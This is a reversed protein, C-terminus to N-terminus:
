AADDNVLAILEQKSHIGTKAYIRKTHSRVTDGSIFLRSGVSNANYGLALFEMVEVERRTLGYESAM